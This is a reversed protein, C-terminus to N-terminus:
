AVSVRFIVSCVQLLCCLRPLFAGCWFLVYFRRCAAWGRLMFFGQRSFAAVSQEIVCCFCVSFPVYRFLHLTDFAVARLGVVCCLFFGQRLFVAVSQKIVCCFCVSFPVYRFLRLNDENFADGNAPEAVVLVGWTGGSGNKVPGYM